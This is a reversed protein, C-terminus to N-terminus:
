HICLRVQYVSTGGCESSDEIEQHDLRGLLGELDKAQQDEVDMQEESAVLVLSVLPVLQALIVRSGQLV